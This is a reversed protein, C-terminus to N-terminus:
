LTDCLALSAENTEAIYGAVYHGGRKEIRALVEKFLLTGIGRRQYEPLIALHAVLSLFPSYVFLMMGIIQENYEAIVISQPDHELQAKYVGPYDDIPAWYLGTEKLLHQIHPIDKKNASRIVTNSQEM